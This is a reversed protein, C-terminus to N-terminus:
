VKRFFLKEIDNGHLAKNKFPVYPDLPILYHNIFHHVDWISVSLIVGKQLLQQFTQVSLKIFWDIGM